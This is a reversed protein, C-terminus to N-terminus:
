RRFITTLNSDSSRNFGHFESNCFFRKEDRELTHVLSQVKTYQASERAVVFGESNAQSGVRPRARKTHQGYELINNDRYVRLLPVCQLSNLATCYADAKPNGGKCWNVM